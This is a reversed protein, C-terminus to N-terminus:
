YVRGQTEGICCKLEAIAEQMARGRAEM